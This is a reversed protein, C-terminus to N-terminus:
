LTLRGASNPEIQYPCCCCCFFFLSLLVIEQLGPPVLYLCAPLHERERERNIRIPWHFKRLQKLREERERSNISISVDHQIRSLNKWHTIRQYFFDTCFTSKADIKQERMIASSKCSLTVCMQWALPKIAPENSKSTKCCSFHKLPILSIKEQEGDM